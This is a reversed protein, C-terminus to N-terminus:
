EKRYKDLLENLQQLETNDLGCMSIDSEDLIPNVIELINIGAQTLTIVTERKDQLSSGRRVLKKVVLRDVIRPVNSSREILRGSIDKVCMLEPYKGKLIRLVNYQEPTLGYSKLEASIRCKVQYATYMLNIVAKQKQTKFGQTQIAQELKM